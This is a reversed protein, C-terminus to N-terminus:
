EASQQGPDGATETGRRRRELPFRRRLRWQFGAEHVQVLVSATPRMSDQQPEDSEVNPVLATDLIRALRGPADAARLEASLQAEERRAVVAGEDAELLGEVPLNAVHLGMEAGRPIVDAAPTVLTLPLALERGDEVSSVHPLAPAALRAPQTRRGLPRGAAPIGDEVADDGHALEPVADVAGADDDHAGVKVVDADDSALVAGLQEDAEGLFPGARIVVLPRGRGHDDAAVQVARRVLGSVLGHRRRPRAHRVHRREQGLALAVSVRQRVRPKPVRVLRGAADVKEEDVFGARGLDLRKGDEGVSEVVAKVDGIVAGDDGVQVNRRRYRSSTAPPFRGVRANIPHHRAAHQRGREMDSETQMM